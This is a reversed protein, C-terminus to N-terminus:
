GVHASLFALEAPLVGQSYGIEHGGAGFTATVDASPGFGDVYTRTAPYFPDETGIDIRVPIGTLDAQADMVSFRRYEAANRFGNPHALRPTEYLGPSSACIAAVRDPGLIAGLHLVGYGGMSWGLLGIRSTSVDPRALLMPLLEDIVMAGADEGWPREHWFSTGGSVTALAFPAIGDRVVARALAGPLDWPEEILAASSGGHGHLAVVVPLPGSVGPPRALAWRTSVQVGRRGRAASMFTGSVVPGPAVADDLDGRATGKEDLNLGIGVAAAGTIAAAGTLLLTRRSTPAM